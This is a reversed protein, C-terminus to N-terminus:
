DCIDETEVTEPSSPIACTHQNSIGKRPAVGSREQHTARLGNKARHEANNRGRLTNPDPCCPLSRKTQRRVYLHAFADALALSLKEYTGFKVEDPSSRSVGTDSSSVM